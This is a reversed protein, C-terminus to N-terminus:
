AAEKWTGTIWDLVPTAVAKKGGIEVVADPFVKEVDQAMPGVMKPYTKPDGKYRYSYIPVGTEEHEGLKKIDTKMTEDSLAFLSALASLAGTGAQMWAGASSQGPATSTSETSRFGGTGLIQAMEGLGYWPAQKQEMFKAKNNDLVKQQQQQRVDGIRLMEVGPAQSLANAVDFLKPAAMQRNREAAYNQYYLANSADLADRSYTQIATNEQVDQRAGGYAGQAIAQDRVAPLAQEMLGQTVRGVAADATAKLFPNTEPNLYKGNVTDLGLQRTENAGTSLSGANATLYDLGQDIMGGSKQDTAIQDGKFPNKNTAAVAEGALKYMNEYYPKAADWPEQKTVQTTQKPQSAM